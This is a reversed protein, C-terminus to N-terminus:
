RIRLTAPMAGNSKAQRWADIAALTRQTAGLQSLVLQQARSGQGALYDPDCLCRRLWLSLAQQDAVVQAADAALLATVVDRFNTTNPGFAVAAGYAAPEIMSQGGRNTLSGGVFGADAVGWWAGLEGITDVLLVRPCPSMQMEGLRSRRQWAIQARDLMAAVQEFREPHRPVLILRLGPFEPELTRFVALAIEEEPDQTSGALFVFEDDAIEALQRLRVTDRNTRDTVAGDFKLSGTVVVAEPRAGLELFRKAYTADQAAIGDLQRLLGAVLPRIRGYGRFSKDSLRGNVVAVQAGFRKAAAILNPWLELEALLLLDPRVRQVAQRTAWSFDLPCYFVTLDDYRRCALAYGTKTTTSVVCQWDPYAERFAQLLPGILNVEGVSVAHFWVTQQGAPSRPVRGLFKEALGERYKGKTISAYIWWPALVVLLGLYVMNILYAM